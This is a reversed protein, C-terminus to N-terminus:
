RVAQCCVGTPVPAWPGGPKNFIFNVGQIVDGLTVTNSGNWDGRCLLSTLWCLPTPTCGPKNFIYNVMAIIDGLTYTNSANADGPRALCASEVYKLTAYDTNYLSAASSGTLYVQGLKDVALAQARDFFNGPGNYRKVWITDGNPAYKITTYDDYTGSGFSYGTVYVDGAPDLALATAFDESNGPGNYRRVWLTDGNPAYKITAYDFDTEYSYSQGTVYINGVGDVALSRAEDNFNGPGNYGRVWLTDGNPAYRITVYDIGNVDSDYCHGTVYVNGASDLALANAIDDYNGPGDYGRVWLTDGNPAYKITAYDFDIGSYRHGTVYVNGSGDVAIASAMDEDNGPGGYRRIWITDGNSAYKITVYDPDLGNGFYSYGTVCVSGAADVAIAQAEDEWDGPGNYRRVWLNDGNPAYKITAYDFDTDGDYSYGTVYVNGAGDLALATAIDAFDGPGNYRRVWLSDGNPAYKITVYDDSTGNWSYGAVYVNGSDDVALAQAADDSNGLGNFLRIWATDVQALAPTYYLSLLVLLAIRKFIMMTRRRFVQM